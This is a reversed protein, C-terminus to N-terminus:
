RSIGLSLLIREQKEEMESAQVPEIHDYGLLHLMSHAFLFSFERRASHGYLSAQSLIKPVSIM